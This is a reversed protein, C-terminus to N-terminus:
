RRRQIVVICTGRKKETELETKKKGCVLGMEGGKARRLYGRAWSALRVQEESLRLQPLRAQLSEVTLPPIVGALGAPVACPLNGDAKLGLQDCIRACVQRLVEGVLGNISRLVEIQEPELQQLVDEQTIITWNNM